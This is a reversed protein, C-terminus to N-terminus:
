RDGHAWGDFVDLFTAAAEFVGTETRLAEIREATENARLAQDTISRGYAALASPNHPRIAEAAAQITRVAMQWSQVAEAIRAQDANAANLRVEFDPPGYREVGDISLVGLIRLGDDTMQVAGDDIVIEVDDNATALRLTAGLVDRALGLANASRTDIASITGTVSQLATSCRTMIEQRETTDM